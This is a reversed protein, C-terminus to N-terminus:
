ARSNKFRQAYTNLSHQLSALAESPKDAKMVASGVGFRTAGADLLAEINKESVGGDVEITVDPYRGRLEEIRMLARPDFSEGQFGVRAISMVQVVSVHGNEILPYVHELPTDLMVSVGTEAGESKWLAYVRPAEDVRFGELQAIVASAGARIFRSGVEQPHQVMLHVEYVITDTYPLLQDSLMTKNYPFSFSPVLHGDMVDIQIRIAGDRVHEIEEVLSSWEDAIIAPAIIPQEM